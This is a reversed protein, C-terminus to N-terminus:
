SATNRKWYELQLPAEDLVIPMCMQICYASVKAFCDTPIWAWTIKMVLFVKIDSLTYM